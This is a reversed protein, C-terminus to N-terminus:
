ETILNNGWKKQYKLNSIKGQIQDKSLRKKFSKNLKNQIDSISLKRVDKLRYLEGVMKESWIKKNSNRVKITGSEDVIQQQNKAVKKLHLLSELEDDNLKNLDLDMNIKVM